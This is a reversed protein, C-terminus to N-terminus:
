CQEEPVKYAPDKCYPYHTKNLAFAEMPVKGLSFSFDETYEYGRSDKRYHGLLFDYLDVYCYDTQNEKKDYKYFMKCKKGKYTTLNVGDFYKKEYIAAFMDQRMSELKELSWCASTCSAVDAEFYYGCVKGGETHTEDPRFAFVNDEILWTNSTKLVGIAMKNDVYYNGIETYVLEGKEDWTNMIEVMGFSCPMKAPTYVVDDFSRQHTLSDMWSSPYASVITGAILLFCVVSKM